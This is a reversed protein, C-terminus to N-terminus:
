LCLVRLYIKAILSRETRQGLDLTAASHLDWPADLAEQFLALCCNLISGAAKDRHIRKFTLHM